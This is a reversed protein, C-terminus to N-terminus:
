PACTGLTLTSMSPKLFPTSLFPELNRAQAVSLSIIGKGLLATKIHVIPLEILSPNGSLFKYCIWNFIDSFWFIRAKRGFFVKLDSLATGLSPRPVTRGDVSVVAKSSLTFYMLAWEVIHGHSQSM